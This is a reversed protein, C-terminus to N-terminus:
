RLLRLREPKTVLYLLALWPWIAAVHRGLGILNLPSGSPWFPAPIVLLRVLVTAALLLIAAARRHRSVSPLLLLWLALIFAALTEPSLIGGIVRPRMLVAWILLKFGLVSILALFVGGVYRGPKLLCAAFSVVTTLELFMSLHIAPWGVGPQPVLAFQSILWLVLLWLGLTAEGRPRFWSRRWGYLTRGARLWRAHHLALLAGTLAGLGNFVVDLNSAFRGPLLVQLSEMSLSLLVGALWVLAISPARSGPRFLYLALLYGLPLYALLNTSADNRTVYRPPPAFLFAYSWTAPPRWGVFPYLSGLVILAVCVILAKRLNTPKAQPM